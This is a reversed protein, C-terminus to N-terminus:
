PITPVHELYGDSLFKSAKALILDMLPKKTSGSSVALDKQLAVTTM